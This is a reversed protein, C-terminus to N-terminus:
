KNGNEPVQLRLFSNQLNCCIPDRLKIRSRVAQSATFKGDATTRARVGIQRGIGGIVIGIGLLQEQSALQITWRGDGGDCKIRGGHRHLTRQSDIQHVGRLGISGVPDRSAICLQHEIGALCQHRSPIGELEIGM